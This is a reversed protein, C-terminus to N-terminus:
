NANDLGMMHTAYGACGAEDWHYDAGAGTTGWMALSAAASRAASLGADWPEGEVFDPDYVNVSEYEPFGAKAMCEDTLSEQLRLVELEEPSPTWPTEVLAAGPAPQQDMGVTSGDSDDPPNAIAGTFGLAVLVLSFAGLASAAAAILGAIRTRM